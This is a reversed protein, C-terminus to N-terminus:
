GGPIQTVGGSPPPAGLTPAAPTPTIGSNLNIGGASPNTNILGGGSNGSGGFLGALGGAGQLANSFLSFPNGQANAAAGAQTGIQNYQSGVGQEIGAAAKLNADRDQNAGSISKGLADGQLDKLVAGPNAIGGLNNKLTNM